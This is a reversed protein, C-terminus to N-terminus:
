TSTPEDALLTYGSRDITRIVTPQSPNTELKQRLRSIWVRLYPLDGSFQPGWVRTLIQANLLTRGPNSALEQIVLWETRTLRIVEGAKKVLRRNLDIEVNGSRVIRGPSDVPRSRRLVARLRARLEEYNFPKTIYDDAGLSLGMLKDSPSTRASVLLVGMASHQRINSLVDFGSMDPLVIDLLMADPKHESTIELAEKGNQAFFLELDDDELTMEIIKLISPDDDVALVRSGNM